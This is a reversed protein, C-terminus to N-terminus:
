EQWAPQDRGHVLKDMACLGHGTAQTEQKSAFFRLQWFLLMHQM